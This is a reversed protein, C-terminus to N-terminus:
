HHYNPATKRFKEKMRKLKGRKEEKKPYNESHPTSVERRKQIKPQKGNAQRLWVRLDDDSKRDSLCTKTTAM